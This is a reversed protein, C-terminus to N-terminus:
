KRYLKIGFRSGAIKCINYEPNLINIYYQERLLLNNTSCYELIHLNFNSYNYNLLASHILSQSRQLNAKLHKPCLYCRLRNTLDITSGVYFEGTILNELLYVGSKNKNEKYITFKCNEINYYIRLPIIINNM